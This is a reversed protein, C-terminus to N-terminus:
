RRGLLFGILLAGAVIALPKERIAASASDM